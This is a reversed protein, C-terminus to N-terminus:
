NNVSVQNLAAVTGQIERSTSRNRVAVQEGFLGDNLAIGAASVRMGNQEAVITVREGECVLCTNRERIPEDARIRRKVRAGVLSEKSNYLGGRIMSTDMQRIVLDNGQILTGPALDRSATIVPAMTYIRVPVYTRWPATGTECSIEVTIYRDLSANSALQVRAPDACRRVAMRPDLGGADVRVEGGDPVSVQPLVHDEALERLQKHDYSFYADTTTNEATNAVAADTFGYSTISLMAGFILYARIKM